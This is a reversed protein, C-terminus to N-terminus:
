RSEDAPGLIRQLKDVARRWLKRAAGASCSLRQGIEESSCRELSRWQIVLRYSEPLQEMARELAADQERARAQASPSSGEDVLGGRLEDEAAADISVERQVQRKETGRYQRRVNALNHLLIQRLWTLLEEEGRGRFAAFGRHAEM